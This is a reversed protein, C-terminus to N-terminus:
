IRRLTARVAWLCFCFASVPITLEEEKRYLNWIRKMAKFKNSSLSKKPRRYIVLAENLGYAVYGARLIKWWTATDESEVEPMRIEEKSIKSMDFMVTSTFIVTRSLAKRYTLREPVVVVKGLGNADEDGFEYATFAFAAQKDKIFIIEKELKDPLWVDDADLFAIYKGKAIEIGTNRAKAAGGNETKCILSIHETASFAAEELVGQPLKQLSAEQMIGRIIETSNDPSCDDILILEWNKYTQKRVMEITKAIYSAAKYVPVIISVM